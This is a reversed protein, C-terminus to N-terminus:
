EFKLIIRMMAASCSHISGGGIGIKDVGGFGAGGAL